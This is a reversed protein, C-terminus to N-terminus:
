RAEAGQGRLDGVQQSAQTRPRSFMTMLPPVPEPLVVVSFTSDEKMGASSRITVM